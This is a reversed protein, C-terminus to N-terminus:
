SFYPCLIFLAWKGTLQSPKSNAETLMDRLSDMHTHTHTSLLNQKTITTPTTIEAAPKTSCGCFYSIRKLLRGAGTHSLCFAAEGAGAVRSTWNGEACLYSPRLAANGIERETCVVQALERWIDRIRECAWAARGSACTGDGGSM